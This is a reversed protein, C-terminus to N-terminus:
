ADTPGEPQALRGRVTAGIVGGALGGGIAAVLPVLDHRLFAEFQGAFAVSLLILSVLPLAVWVGWVWSPGPWIVGMISGAVFYLAFLPLTTGIVGSTLGTFSSGFLLAGLGILVAIVGPLAPVRVRSLM